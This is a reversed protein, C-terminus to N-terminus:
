AYKGLFIYLPLLFPRETTTAFQETFSKGTLKFNSSAQRGTQINVGGGGELELYLWFPFVSGYSSLFLQPVRVIHSNPNDEGGGGGWDRWKFTGLHSIKSGNKKVGIFGIHTPSKLVPSCFFFNRLSRCINAM